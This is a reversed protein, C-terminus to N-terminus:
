IKERVKAVFGMDVIQNRVKEDRLDYVERRM